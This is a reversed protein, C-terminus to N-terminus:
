PLSVRVKLFGTKHEGTRLTCCGVIEAYWWDTDSLNVTSDEQMQHRALYLENPLVRIVQGVEFSIRLTNSGREITGTFGKKVRIDYVNAPNIFCHDQDGWEIQSWM